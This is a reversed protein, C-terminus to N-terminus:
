KVKKASIIMVGAAGVATLISATYSVGAAPSDSNTDKFDSKEPKTIDATKRPNRSFSGLMSILSERYKEIETHKGSVNVTIWEDENLPYLGIVSDLCIGDDSVCHFDIVWFECGDSDNATTRNRTTTIGYFEDNVPSNELEERVQAYGGQKKHLSGEIAITDNEGFIAGYFLQWITAGDGNSEPQNDYIEPSFEEPIDLGFQALESEYSIRKAPASYTGLATTETLAPEPQEAFASSATTLSITASIVLASLSKIPKFM